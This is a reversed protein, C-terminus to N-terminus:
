TPICRICSVQKKSSSFFVCCFMSKQLNSLMSVERLVRSLGSILTREQSQNEFLILRKRQPICESIMGSPLFTIQNWLRSLVDLVFRTQWIRCIKAPVPLLKLRYSRYILRSRRRWFHTTRTLIKFYPLFRQLTASFIMKPFIEVKQLIEINEGISKVM